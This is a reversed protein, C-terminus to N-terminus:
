NQALNMIENDHVKTLNEIRSKAKGKEEAYIKALRKRENADTVRALQVERKNEEKQEDELLRLMERNQRTRIQELRKDTPLLKLKKAEEERTEFREQEPLPKQYVEDNKAPSAKSKDMKPSSLGVFNSNVEKMLISPDAKGQQVLTFKAQVNAKDMDIQKKMVQRNERVDLKEQKIRSIKEDIVGQKMMLQTREYEKKRENRKVNDEKDLRKMADLNAKYMREEAKQMNAVDLAKEKLERDHQIKNVRSQANETNAV